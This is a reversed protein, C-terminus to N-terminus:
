RIKSAVDLSEHKFTITGGQNAFEMVASKGIEGSVLESFARRLLKRDFFAAVAPPVVEGLNSGRDGPRLDDLTLSGLAAMREM